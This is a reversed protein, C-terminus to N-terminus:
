SSDHRSERCDIRCKIFMGPMLAVAPEDLLATAIVVKKGHLSRLERNVGIVKGHISNRGGWFTVAANQTPAVRTYDQMRLPILAIYGSTDSITLLTDSEFARSLTGSIPATVTYSAARGKIAAIENELAAINAHVLKVQEPKAGTRAGELNSPSLSRTRPYQKMRRTSSTEWLDPKMFLDRNRIEIKRHEQQRRKASWGSSAERVVAAKEGDFQCGANSSSNRASWEFYSSGQMESSFVNGLTDGKRLRAPLSIAVALISQVAPNFNLSATAKV